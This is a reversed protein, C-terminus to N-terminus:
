AVEDDLGYIPDDLDIFPPYDREPSEPESEPEPGALPPLAVSAAAAEGATAPADPPRAFDIWRDDLREGTPHTWTGTQPPETPPRPRGSPALPRGRADTFAIGDPRNGDGSIGLQGRHHLRHHRGCLALLNATDTAGGDEWHVIHHVHLWRTRECGPVRCGGDREEIALRTRDAVIRAKRGVSLPKGDIDAQVRAKADCTMFRRLSDPLAPGLHVHANTRGDTDAGVHIVLHRDYHPRAIAEAALSTEAMALLADAWSVTNSADSRDADGGFLRQRAVTLAREVLAGEDAPLVASLRWSGDDDFGFSVRRAEEPKPEPQTDPEPGPDGPEASNEPGPAVPEPKPPRVPEDFAYRSLTRKLQAVTAVRGLDAAEVDNRVPTYRCIVAVQDEALEGAQLAGRTEPLEPLRRAMAVLSRARGLSVGCQWAVWQEPSRIGAGAYADTTLVRGILSVLRGTAVNLIGCVEAIEGELVAAEAERCEATTSM